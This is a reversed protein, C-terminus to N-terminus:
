WKLTIRGYYYGGNIGYPSNTLPADYITQGGVSIQGTVPDIKVGEPKKNFLNNAGVAFSINRTVELGLELDTIFSPTVENRVYNGNNPSNYIYAPGYYTERFTASVKGLSWDLGGIVKASPSSTTVLSQARRDFLAQGTIQAPTPDIRTIDRQSFNALLVWNFTGASDTKMRYNATVDIGRTRTDMGNTLANVSVSGVTPDVSVGRSTIADLVAQSNVKGGRGFINGTAVIRDKISIQYADVTITLGSVPRIVTGVSYNTAKEPKLDQFGLLKAPASNAPLLVAVRTPSASTTSYHEEALTPARFGTSVTGRLAFAPSIDYRGTLKASLNSGFDSYHEYRLAADLRVKQVPQLALDLYGAVNSRAYSGADFPTLGPLSQSGEKYYSAPDGSGVQYTNRRYEGGFAVNLPSFLGLNVEKTVDLNNTWETSKNLGIYFNTPTFHTDIFLANNASNNNYIRVKDIGYTSSLDWTWGGGSGKVGLTASLDDERISQVPIYGNPAFILEGPTTFTGKVGLVPSAITTDSLRANQLASGDRHGYTGFSYLEVGGFDYGTNYSVAILDSQPDGFVYKSIYPYYPLNVYAAKQAPTLSALLSGDPNSVRSDLGANASYKHKRYFGSLDLYGNDGLNTALDLSAAYQLGDGKYYQGATGSFSGGQKKDDLIINIVGAIADSGYQAAAGDELVEIRKISGKPIFDLDPAVSGQFGSPLTQFLATGHRRKGNVLILTENPSLGRLSASLAGAPAASVQQMNFSPVLQNLAQALSPQGVHSLAEEGVLKIPAPSESAAIGTTRVGTVIIDSGQAEAAQPAPVSKASTQADVPQAQEKQPAEQAAASGIGGVACLAVALASYSTSRIVLM